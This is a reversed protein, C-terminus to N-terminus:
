RMRWKKTKRKGRIEKVVKRLSEVNHMPAFVDIYPLAAQMGKVTPEYDPNGALPNLWIVKGSKRHIKRMSEALLETNGTDWGDSLIIVISRHNLYKGAYNKTFQHLSIGIQTGGSWGPVTDALEELIESFSGHQLQRTIRHLSTSFVFTEIQKYNNQFAYLFRVLFRSYLDMSKSVDCLLVLRLKQREQKQFVLDIIEGGRRMNSRLTGRLDFKGPRNNKKYRRNYRNALNRAMVHILKSLQQLGEDGFGSFNKRNLSTSTSYSALELKEDSSENYLWSKLEQLSPAQQKKNNDSKKSGKNEEDVQKVKSDVAKAMEKWYTDFLTEFQEQQKRSKALVIQLVLRFQQPDQFSNLVHLGQLVEAEEAPGAVFHKERLYRCFAVVHASLESRRKILKSSPNM